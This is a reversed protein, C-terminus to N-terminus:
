RLTSLAVSLTFTQESVDKARVSIQSLVFSHVALMALVALGPLYGLLWAIAVGITVTPLLFRVLNLYAPLPQADATAWQVLTNPSRDITEDLDAQAELQQRWDLHPLLEASAQQRLRIADSKAPALLWVALSNRGEHTHTRNLLRFLSHKGFVDLDHTYHHTPNAFSAGTDARLYQRSLRATEDENIFALRKALDRERGIAQHKKLLILFGAVGVLLVVAAGIQEDFGILLWVAAVSGVFWVLRGLALQNYRRQAAQEAQRFQQQRQTFTEHPMASHM